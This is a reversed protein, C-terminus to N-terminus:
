PKCKFYNDCDDTCVHKSTDKKQEKRQKFYTLVGTLFISALIFIICYTNM